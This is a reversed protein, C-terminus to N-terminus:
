RVSYNRPIMSADWTYFGIQHPVRSFRGTRHGRSLENLVKNKVERLEQADLEGYIGQVIENVSLVRGPNQELFATIADILFQGEFATLMPVVKTKSLIFPKKRKSKLSQSFGNSSNPNLLSLTLTYCGPENPIASWYGRERGQTLSSQVRGKVVKFISSELEGYLSRVIFDIHCVSGAYEYLLKKLAEMRTLTQHHPLMPIDAGKVFDDYSTVSTDPKQADALEITPSQPPNIELKEPKQRPLQSERPKLFNCESTQDSSLLLRSSDPATARIEEAEGLSSLQQSHEPLAWHSLLAETHNLQSRAQVFLQQYEEVLGAYYDRLELLPAIFIDPPAQLQEPSNM